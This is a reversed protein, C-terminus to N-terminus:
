KFRLVNPPNSQLRKATGTETEHLANIFDKKGYTQGPKMKGFAKDFSKSFSHKYKLLDSLSKMANFNPCNLILTDGVKLTRADLALIGGQNDALQNFQGSLGSFCAEEGEFRGWIRMYINNAAGTLHSARHLEMKGDVFKKDCELVDFLVENQGQGTRFLKEGNHDIVDINFKM